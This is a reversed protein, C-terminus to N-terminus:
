ALAARTTPSAAPVIKAIALGALLWGVLETVLSAAIFALPFGYWIWYSVTLSLTAFLALLGVAIARRLYPAAMLSVLFAAIGAAVITTGLESLLQRPSFAVGPGAHYALLGTPGAEIKKMHREMQQEPTLGPMDDGGPIFYLGDRAGSARLAAVVAEEGSGLTSLGATGLPTAMHAVSTWVFVILGGVVAATIIKM